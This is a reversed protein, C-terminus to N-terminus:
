FHLTYSISCQVPMQPPYESGTTFSSSRQALEVIKADRQKVGERWQKRVKLNHVIEKLDVLNCGPVREIRREKMIQRVSAVDM